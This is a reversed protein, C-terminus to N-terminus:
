CYPFGSDNIESETIVSYYIPVNQCPYTLYYRQPEISFYKKGFCPCDQIILVSTAINSPVDDPVKFNCSYAKENFFSYLQNCSQNHYFKNLIVLLKELNNVENSLPRLKGDYDINFGIMDLFDFSFKDFQLKYYTLNPIFDISINRNTYNLTINNPKSDYINISNHTTIYCKKSIFPIYVHSDSVESSNLYVHLKNSSYDPCSSKNLIVCGYLVFGSQEKGLSPILLSPFKNGDLTTSIYVISYIIYANRYKCVNKGTFPLKIYSSLKPWPKKEVNEKIIVAAIPPINNVTDQESGTLCKIIEQIEADSM